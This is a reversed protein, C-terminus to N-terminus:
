IGSCVLVMEVTVLSFRVNRQASFGRELAQVSAGAGLGGRWGRPPGLMEAVHSAVLM